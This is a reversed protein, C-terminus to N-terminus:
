QLGFYEIQFLDTNNRNYMEESYTIINQDNVKDEIEQQINKQLLFPFFSM